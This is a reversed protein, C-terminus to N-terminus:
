LYLSKQPIANYPLLLGLLGLASIDNKSYIIVESSGANSVTLGPFSSTEGAISIKWGEPYAAEYAITATLHLHYNVMTPGSVLDKIGVIYDFLSLVITAVVTTVDVGFTAISAFLDGGAALVTKITDIVIVPLGLSSLLSDLSGSDLSAALWDALEQEIEAKTTSAWAALAATLKAKLDDRLAQVISATDFMMEQDADVTITMSDGEAVDTVTVKLKSVDTQTRYIYLGGSLIEVGWSPPNPDTNIPTGGVYYNVDNFPASAVSGVQAPQGKGKSYPIDASLWDGLDHAGAYGLYPHSFYYLIDYILILVDEGFEIFTESTLLDIMLGVAVGLGSTKLSKKLSLLVTVVQNKKAEDDGLAIVLNKLTTYIDYLEKDVTSPIFSDIMELLNVTAYDYPDPLGARIKLTGEIIPDTDYEPPPPPPVPQTPPPPPLVPTGQGDTGAQDTPSIPGGDSNQAVNDLQEWASGIETLTQPPDAVNTNMATGVMSAVQQGLAVASNLANVAADGALHGSLQATNNALEALSGLITTLQSTKSMDTFMSGNQVAQLASSLSTPMPYQLPAIQNLVSVPVTPALSDPVPQAYDQNVNVALIAPALNPIPSDQWNFFRRVNIYESANSLGLIAEAFVGRSPLFVTEWHHRQRVASEYEHLEHVYDVVIGAIDEGSPEPFTATWDITGPEFSRQDGPLAGSVTYDISIHDDRVQNATGALVLPYTFQRSGITQVLDVSGEVARKGAKGPKTDVYLTLSATSFSGEKGAMNPQGWFRYKTTERGKRMAAQRLGNGNLSTQGFLPAHLSGYFNQGIERRLGAADEKLKFILMNETLGVPAPDILASLALTETSGYIGLHEIIDKVQEKELNALLYKTFGYRYFNFYDEIEAMVKAPDTDVIVALEANIYAEVDALEESIERELEAYTYTKHITQTVIQEQDNQDAVTYEIKDLWLDVTASGNLISFKDNDVDEKLKNRDSFHGLENDKLEEEAVDIPMKETQSEDGLYIKLMRKLEARFVSNLKVKVGESVDFSDMTGGSSTFFSSVDFIDLDLVGYTIYDGKGTMKLILCGDLDFGSIALTVEPNADYFKVRVPESYSRTRTIKVREVRLDGSIDFAENEPNFDKVVQNWEFAKGPQLQRIAKNFIYWYPKILEINFSIPGFPLFLVPSLSDVGTNIRYSDLVEYYQMTLAHSHNYNTVNHTQARQRGGQTDEVIVTSMVSRVNSANQVTADSINQVLEGTVTREGTTESALTGQVSSNSYVQSSGISSATSGLAGGGIEVLGMLDASASVGASTGSGKGRVLAESTTKTTAAVISSGDLHEKATTQVVENLARTQLFESDLQESVTTTEDRSSRQRRYWDLVAINRSEGPALALSHKIEGLYKGHDIWKQHISALYGLHFKLQARYFIDILASAPEPEDADPFHLLAYDEFVYEKEKVYNSYRVQTHTSGILKPILAAPASPKEYFTGRISHEVIQQAEHYPPFVALQALTKISFVTELQQADTESLSSLYVIPLRDLHSRAPATLASAEIYNEIGADALNGQKFCAMVFEAHRCPEYEAMDRVTFCGLANLAQIKEVSNVSALQNITHTNM